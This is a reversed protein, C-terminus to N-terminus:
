DHRWDRCDLLVLGHRLPPLAPPLHRVRTLSPARCAAHYISLLEGSNRLAFGNAMSGFALLKAGPSVRGALRELQRRTAEKVRYEEETPLIPGLFTIICSTLEMCHREYPITGPSPVKHAHSGGGGASAAHYQQHAQAAQWQPTGHAYSAPVQNQVGQQQPSPQHAIAGPAVTSGGRARFNGSQAMSGNPLSAARGSPSRSAPYGSSSLSASSSGGGGYHSHHSYAAHLAHGGPGVQGAAAAAQQQAELLDFASELVIPKSPLPQPTRQVTSPTANTKNTSPTPGPATTSSSSTSSHSTTPRTASSSSATSAPTAM